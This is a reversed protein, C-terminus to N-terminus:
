VQSPLKEGFAYRRTWAGDQSEVLHFHPPLNELEGEEDHFACGCASGDCDIAAEIRLNPDEPPTLESKSWYLKFM